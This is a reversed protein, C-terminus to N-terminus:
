RRSAAVALQETLEALLETAAKELAALDALTVGSETATPVTPATPATPTSM